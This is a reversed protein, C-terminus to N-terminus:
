NNNFLGKLVKRKGFVELDTHEQGVGIFWIPKEIAKSVSLLAGGEKDIDAKAVIIGDVGIKKDFRKAQKVADSGTLADVVLISYDVDAVEKIKKLEQMLNKDSHMRGATDILVADIEKAKAHEITDYAVSAPDSGYEHKIVRKDLEDAHKQLQEMSAARFTDSAAMVSSLDGAELWKSFKAITTTKGVGNVGLFMFVVPEEKERIEKLITDLQPEILSAEIAKRLSEKIKEEVKNRDLKKGILENSLEKKLQAITSPAINKKLLLFRLEQFNEEFYEQTVERKKIKDSITKIKSSIEEKLGELM